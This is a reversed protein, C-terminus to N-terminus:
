KQRFDGSSDFHLLLSLERFFLSLDRVHDGSREIVYGIVVHFIDLDFIECFAAVDTLCM